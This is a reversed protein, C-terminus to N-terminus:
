GSMSKGDVLGAAFRLVLDAYAIRNRWREPIGRIDYYAGAIQGYVAATTDADDGLNAALLCGEEFTGSCHFAWLASELSKVVYGSGVIEPPSKRKYSGSAIEDVEPCLPEKKWADGTPSYRRSLLTEKPEGRLAGVILGGFFRCADVCSRAGHTTRSSEGSMRIAEDPDSAFFLPVPALRMLCGEHRERETITPM